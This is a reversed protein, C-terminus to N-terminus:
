QFWVDSPAGVSSLRSTDITESFCKAAFNEGASECSRLEEAIFCLSVVAVTIKQTSIDCGYICFSDNGRSKLRSSTM